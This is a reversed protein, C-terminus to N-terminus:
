SSTPAMVRTVIQGPKTASAAERVSQRQYPLFKYLHSIPSLTIRHPIGALCPLTSDSAILDVM